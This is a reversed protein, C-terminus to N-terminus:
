FLNRLFDQTYLNLFNILGINLLRQAMNVPFIQIYEWLLLHQSIDWKNEWSCKGLFDRSDKIYSKIHILFPKSLMLIDDVYISLRRTPCNPFEVIQRLSLDSPEYIKIYESNQVQM